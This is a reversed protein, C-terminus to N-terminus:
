PALGIWLHEDDGSLLPREPLHPLFRSNRITHYLTNARDVLEDRLDTVNVRRQAADAKDNNLTIPLKDLM